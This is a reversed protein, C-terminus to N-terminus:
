HYISYEPSTELDYKSILYHAWGGASKHASASNTFDYSDVFRAVIIHRSSESIISQKALERDIASFLLEQQRTPKKITASTM